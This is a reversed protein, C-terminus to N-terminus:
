TQMRDALAQEFGTVIAQEHEIARKHEAIKEILQVKSWHRAYIMAAKMTEAPDLLHPAPAIDDRIWTM